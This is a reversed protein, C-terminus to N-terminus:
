LGNLRLFRTQCVSKLIIRTHLFAWTLARESRDGTAAALATAVCGSLFFIPIGLLKITLGHEQAVFQTGALVFSGTMQAVFIGFLGLFIISDVYGAVFSLLGPVPRPVTVPRIM